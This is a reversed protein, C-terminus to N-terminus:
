AIFAIAVIETIGNENECIVQPVNELAITGCIYRYPDGIDNSNKSRRKCKSWQRSFIWLKSKFFRLSVIAEEFPPKYRAINQM